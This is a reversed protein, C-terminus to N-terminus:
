ESLTYPVVSLTTDAAAGVFNGARSHTGHIQRNSLTGQNKQASAGSWIGSFNGTIKDGNPAAVEFSLYLSRAAEWDDRGVNSGTVRGSYTIGSDGSMTLKDGQQTVKLYSLHVGNDEASSGSGGSTVSYYFYTIAVNDGTSANLNASKITWSGGSYDITGATYGAYVLNGAGDDTLAASGVKAQFTGAVIGNGVPSVKGSASTSSAMTGNSSSKVKVTSSASASDETESDTASSTSYVVANVFRYTGTFNAWSLGDNWTNDHAGGWECGSFALAMVSALALYSFRSHM